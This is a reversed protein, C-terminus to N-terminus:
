SSFLSHQSNWDTACNWSFCSTSYNPYTLNDTFFPRTQIPNAYYGFWFGRVWTQILIEEKTSRLYIQPVAL